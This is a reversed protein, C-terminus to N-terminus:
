ALPGRAKHQGFKIVKCAAERQMLKEYCKAVREQEQCLGRLVLM